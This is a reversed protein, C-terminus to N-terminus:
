PQKLVNYARVAMALAQEMTLTTEPSFQGDGVGNIIGVTSPWGLESDVWHGKVDTFSHTYNDTSVGFLRATRNMMAAFQARTLYADPSFLGNGTGNIIGLANCAATEMLSIDSFVNRDISLGKSAAYSEISMGSVKEIIAAILRSAEMRSIELSFKKDVPGLQTFGLDAAKDVESRAWDSPLTDSITQKLEELNHASGIGMLDFRTEDAPYVGTIYFGDYETEGMEVLVLLKQKGFYLMCCENGDYAYSRYNDYGLSLAYPKIITDFTAIGEYDFCNAPDIPYENM